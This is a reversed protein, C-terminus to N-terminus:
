AASHEGRDAPVARGRCGLREARPEAAASHWARLLRRWGRGAAPGAPRRRRRGAEPCARIGRTRAARRAAGLGPRGGAGARDAGGPGRRRGAGADGARGGRRLGDAHVFLERGEQLAFDATILAGSREPAEVVVVTRCMGSIIRNRAPFQHALPLTGPPYESLLAGGALLIRRALAESSRPYVRDIGNGLVALTVGGAEVSGRHAASDVGLALGSVTVAGLRALGGGLECAARRAAGTPHRTGVVAVWPAEAEPLRGRHYLVLPPDTIEALAAPYGPGRYFTCGIGAETM